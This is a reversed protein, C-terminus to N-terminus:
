FLSGGPHVTMEIKVKTYEGGKKAFVVGMDSHINTASYAMPMDWKEALVAGAGFLIAASAITTALKVKLAIMDQRGQTSARQYEQKQERFSVGPRM